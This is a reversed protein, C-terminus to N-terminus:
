VKEMRLKVTIPAFKYRKGDDTVTNVKYKQAKTNLGTITFSMGGSTFKEGLWEPRMDYREALATFAESERTKVTGDDEVQSATLAFRAHTEGYTIKGIEVAMGFHEEFGRLAVELYARMANITTREM